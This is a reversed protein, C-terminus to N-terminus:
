LILQPFMGLEVLEFGALEFGALEPERGEQELGKEEWELEWEM